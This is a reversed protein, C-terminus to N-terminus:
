GKLRGCLPNLETIVLTGKKIVRKNNLTIDEELITKERGLYSLVKRDKEKKIVQGIYKNNVYYDLNYGLIEFQVM